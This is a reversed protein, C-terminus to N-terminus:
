GGAKLIPAYCQRLPLRARSPQSPGGEAGEGGDGEGEGIGSCPGKWEPVARGMEEQPLELVVSPQLNEAPDKPDTPVLSGGEGSPGGGLAPRATEEGLAESWLESGM